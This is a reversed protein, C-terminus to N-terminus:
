GSRWDLRWMAILCLFMLSFYLMVNIESSVGSIQTQAARREKRLTSCVIIYEEALGILMQKHVDTCAQFVAGSSDRFTKNPSQLMQPESAASQMETAALSGALLQM